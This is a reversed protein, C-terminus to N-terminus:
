SLYPLSPRQSVLLPLTSGKRPYGKTKEELEKLLEELTMTKQKAESRIRVNLTGTEMERKGVVVIYPIWEVGADRIKKGLSEDRDDVDVRFGGEELRRAVSLAYDLHDRSVPIVRVQIPSLWVPISPTRGEKEMLAATDLVAYIYREVSGIIATHIIVPYREEGREDTYKIGFRKANGVDIQFTGIERPRGLSDIITYEVNIVWYYIGAPVVTLLVPSGELKVLEELYNRHEELFDRTVNYIAVYRRGLKGMEEHIRNRVQLAIRKAEELDRTLIHLDPMYFKRLRFCLNVEGRQELRYSDAVEFMGMPLNRYSIVWDKLMSFQQHCAAYRLVYRNKDVRVEYLRDGFLDAHERVPKYSLNFMNTGRVKFVPVGLERAIKWAYESVLETMLTAHPGYRMHGADGMPEWEFGFKRCFDNVRPYGGELEKGFVEKEVLIKFDEEGPGFRYEEPKYLRGDPTMIYFEKEVPRRAAEAVRVERSLESLPHGYCDLDFEKYWGFPARVTEYGKAAVKEEVLRLAELAKSPSALNPSLHAYPYIVVRSVGLRKAVDDIEEAAKEAALRTNAEDEAEVTIFAVLADKVEAEGPAQDLPEADQVAKERARYRFRRAHILLIKLGLGRM